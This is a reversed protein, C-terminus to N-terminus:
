IAHLHPGYGSDTVQGAVSDLHRARSNAKAALASKNFKRVQQQATNQIKLVIFRERWRELAGPFRAAAQTQRSAV